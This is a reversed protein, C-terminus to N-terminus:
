LLYLLRSISIICFLQDALDVTLVSLMGGPRQEGTDLMTIVFYKLNVVDTFNLGHTASIHHTEGYASVSSSDLEESNIRSLIYIRLFVLDV